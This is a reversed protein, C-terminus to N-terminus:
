SSREYLGCLLFGLIPACKEQCPAFFEGEHRTANRNEKGWFFEALGIPVLHNRAAFNLLKPACCDGTGTPLASNPLAAQMLPLHANRFNTASYLSFVDKMLTRSLTRRRHRLEKKSEDGDALTAIQRTLDKIQKEAQETLRFFQDPDILPPVWRPLTFYKNYQGSFAHLVVTSGDVAKCELCGFMKGGAEEYLYDTSLDPHPHRPNLLDITRFQRFHEMLALCHQQANGIGLSHYQQCHHCYGQAIPLTASTKDM